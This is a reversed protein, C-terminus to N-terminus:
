EYHMLVLTSFHSRNIIVEAIVLKEPFDSFKGEKLAELAGQVQLGLRLPLAAKKLQWLLGGM